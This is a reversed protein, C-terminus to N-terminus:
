LSPANERVWSCLERYDSFTVDAVTERRPRRSLHAAHMGVRKAGLVDYDYSNGVYLIEEPTLGMCAALELFPEPNPKLYGSEETWLRCDFLGSFGLRELKKEVPFDSTVAIPFGAARLQEICERVHPFPKVRDLVAEWVGFIEREIRERAEDPSIRLREALMRSELEHHDDIPRLARIEKRVRAFALMLRLHTLAFPLSKLYMVANPYLTGDIDFAVAKIPM